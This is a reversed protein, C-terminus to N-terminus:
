MHFNFNCWDVWGVGLDKARNTIWLFSLVKTEGFITEIHFHKRKHVKDNRARWISWCAVSVIAQYLKKKKSSGDIFMHHNIIDKFSFTLFPPSNMWGAILDWIKCVSPCSTFFHDITDESVLCLPCASNPVPIGRRVLNSFTPIRDLSSRWMHINVKIPLWANWKWNTGAGVAESNHLMKKVMSSHFDGEWSGLNIGATSLPGEIKSIAKWCGPISLKVPIDGWVTSANAHIATIVRRWLSTHETNYRWAWKSLLALNAAKLSGVGLGGAEKPSLITDWNVWHIKKKDANSGWFFQRRIRELGELVNLPARFLSFFYLPLSSLVSKLLTLRGGISLSNSKWRSLRSKFKDFVPKWNKATNMNGGIPIGLYNFPFTGLSCGLSNAVYNVEAENRGINYICSKSLNIKLGSSLFFCRLIRNINLLSSASWNGIFLVDDAFLLHSISPGNNPLSVGSFLGASEAKRLICSLAEMAIVFLFPSLPDGQRLGRSCQFELTPSGNILVSVRSAKLIGDIWSCWRFPFGMQVLISQLFDWNLSDFAKEIDVKFLFASGKSRKLWGLIENMMLPGDIINRGSIFASQTDSIVSHIVKKLRNALCKSIVKQIVGILCIPRFDSPCRPDNKKAILALFASGCGCSIVGSDFFYNM